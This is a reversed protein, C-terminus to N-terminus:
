DRSIPLNRIEYTVTGKEKINLPMQLVDFSSAAPDVNEIEISMKVRTSSPMDVYGSLYSIRRNGQRITYDELNSYSNGEDDLLTKIKFAQLRVDHPSNNRLYFTVVVNKGEARCSKITMHLSNSGNEVSLQASLTSAFASVLLIIITSFLTKM